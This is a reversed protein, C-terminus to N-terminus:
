LLPLLLSPVSSLLSLMSFFRLLPSFDHLVSTTGEEDKDLLIGHKKIVERDKPQFRSELIEKVGPDEYYTEPTPIFEFGGLGSLEAVREITRLVDTCGLAIHQIGPGNYNKLYETIQSEKKGPAPENIPILVTSSNNSLM